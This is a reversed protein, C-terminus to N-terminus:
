SEGAAAQTAQEWMKVRRELEETQRDVSDTYERHNRSMQELHYIQIRLDALRTELQLSEKELAQLAKWCANDALAHARYMPDSKFPNNM